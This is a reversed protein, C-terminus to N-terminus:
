PAAQITNKNTPCDPNVKQDIGVSEAEILTSKKDLAYDMASHSEERSLGCFFLLYPSSKEEIVTDAQKRYFPIIPNNVKARWVLKSAHGNLQEWLLKGLGQGQFEPAVVIKDLYHVNPHGPLNEVVIAGVYSGEHEAVCIFDPITCSFYDDVLDRKFGHSVLKRFKEQDIQDFSNAHYIEM